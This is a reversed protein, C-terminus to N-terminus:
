ARDRASASGFVRRALENYWHRKEALSTTGGSAAIKVGDIHQITSHLRHALEENIVQLLKGSVAPHSRRLRAFADHKLILLNCDSKAAVKASAPAPDILALEGFWAGPGLQGLVVPEKENALSIEVSGQDVLFMSGSGYTPAMVVAGAPFEMGELEELLLELEKNNLRSLGPFRQQFTKLDPKM